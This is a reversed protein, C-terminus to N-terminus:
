KLNLENIVEIHDTHLLERVFRDYMMYRYEFEATDFIAYKLETGIFREIEAIKEEIKTKKLAKGVIVLDINQQTNGQFVGSMLFLDIKGLKKFHEFVELPALEEKELLLNKFNDLYVFTTNLKYGDTKKKEVYEQKGKKKVTQKTYTTKKVFTTSELLKFERRVDVISFGLANAVTSIDFSEKEHALVYRMVRVRIKSGFLKALIEM